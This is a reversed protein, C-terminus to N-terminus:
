RRSKRFNKEDKKQVIWVWETQTGFCTRKRNPCVPLVFNKNFSRMCNCCESLYIGANEVKEGTPVTMRDIMLQVFGSPVAIAHGLKNYNEGDFNFRSLSSAVIGIVKGDRNLLPGGSNGAAVPVTTLIGNLGNKDKVVEKIEGSTITDTAELPAGVAFVEDGIHFIKENLELYSVKFNIPIKFLALDYPKDAWLARLSGSLKKKGVYVDAAYAGEVVHYNTVVWGNDKVFFGSGYSKSIKRTKKNYRSVVIKVTANKIHRAFDKPNLEQGLASSAALLAVGVILAICALRNM